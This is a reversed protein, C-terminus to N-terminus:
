LLERGVPRAELWAGDKDDAADEDCQALLEKLTYRPRARMAVVLRGDEIWIRVKAGVQLELVDVLAPPVALMVSGGVKRLTTTHMRSSGFRVTASTAPARVSAVRLTYELTTGLYDIRRVVTPGM